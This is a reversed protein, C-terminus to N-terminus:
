IKPREEMDHLTDAAIWNKPENSSRSLSWHSPGMRTCHPSPRKGSGFLCQKENMFQFFQCGYKEPAEKAGLASGPKAM